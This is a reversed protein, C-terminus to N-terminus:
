DELTRAKRQEQLWMLVGPELEEFIAKVRTSMLPLALLNVELHPKSMAGGQDKLPFPLGLIRTLPQDQYWRDQLSGILAHWLDLETYRKKHLLWLHRLLGPTVRHHGDPYLRAAVTVLRVAFSEFMVAAADTDNLKASPKGGAEKRRRKAEWAAKFAEGTALRDELADFRRAIEAALSSIATVVDELQQAPNQHEAITCLQEGERVTYFTQQTNQCEAQCSAECTSPCTEEETGMAVGGEPHQRENRAEAAADDEDQKNEEAEAHVTGGM